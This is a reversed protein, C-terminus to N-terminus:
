WLTNGLVLPLKASAMRGLHGPNPPSQPGPHPDQFILKPAQCGKGVRRAFFFPAPPADLRAQLASPALAAGELGGGDRPGERRTWARGPWWRPLSDHHHRRRSRPQEQPGHGARLAFLVEVVELRHVDPALQHGELLVAARHTDGPLGPRIPAGRSVPPWGRASHSGGLPHKSVPRDRSGM